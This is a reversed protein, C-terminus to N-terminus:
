GSIAIHRLHRTVESRITRLENSNPPTVALSNFHICNILSKKSHTFCRKSISPSPPPAATTTPLSRRSPPRRAFHDLTVHSPAGSFENLDVRDPSRFSLASRSSRTPLYPVGLETGCRPGPGLGPVSRNRVWVGPTGSRPPACHKHDLILLVPLGFKHAHM